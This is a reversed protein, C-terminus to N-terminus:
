TTERAAPSGTGGAGVMLCAREWGAFWGLAEVVSSRDEDTAVPGRWTMSRILRRLGEQLGQLASAVQRPDWDEGSLLHPRCVPGTGGLCLPCARTEWVSRTTRLWEVIVRRRNVLEAVGVYQADPAAFSAYECTFCRGRSQLRHEAVTKPLLPRELLRAARGTLDEYLIAAQSPRLRLECNAVLFAWSHRPCHGWSRWLQHRVHPSQIAGDLFVFLEKAEVVTLDLGVPGSGVETARSRSM